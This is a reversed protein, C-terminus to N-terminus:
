ARAEHFNSDPNSLNDSLWAHHCLRHMFLMRSPDERMCVITMATSFLIDAYWRDGYGMGTDMTKKVARSRGLSAWTSWRTGLFSSTSCPAGVAPSLRSILGPTASLYLALLRDEPTRPTWGTSPMAPPEPSITPPACYSSWPPGPATIIRMSQSLRIALSM